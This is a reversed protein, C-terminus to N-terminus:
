SPVKYLEFAETVISPVEGFAYFEAARFIEDCLEYVVCPECHNYPVLRHLVSRLPQM